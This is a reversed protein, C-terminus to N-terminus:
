KRCRELRIARHIPMAVDLIDESFEEFACSATQDLLAALKATDVDFPNIKPVDLVV